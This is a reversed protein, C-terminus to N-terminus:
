NQNKPYYGSKHILNRLNKLARLHIQRCNEETKQTLEGIESFSKGRAYREYIVIAQNEPLKMVLSWLITKEEQQLVQELISLNTDEVDEYPFTPDQIEASRKKHMRWWERVANQSTVHIWAEFPIGTDQWKKNTFCAVLRKGMDLLFEERTYPPLKCSYGSAIEFFIPYLQNFADEDGNMARTALTNLDPPRRESM